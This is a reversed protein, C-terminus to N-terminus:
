NWNETKLEVREVLGDGMINVDDVLAEVNFEVVTSARGMDDIVDGTM